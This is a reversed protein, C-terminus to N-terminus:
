ILPLCRANPPSNHATPPQRIATVIEEWRKGSM